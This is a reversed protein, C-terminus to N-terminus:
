IQHGKSKSTLVTSNVQNLGFWPFLYRRDSSFNSPLHLFYMDKCESFLPRGSEAKQM